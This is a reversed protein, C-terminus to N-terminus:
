IRMPPLRSSDVPASDGHTCITNGIGKDSVSPSTSASVNSTGKLPFHGLCPHSRISEYLDGRRPDINVKLLPTIGTKHGETYQLPEHEVTGRELCSLRLCMACAALCTIKMIEFDLSCRRSIGDPLIVLRANRSADFYCVM